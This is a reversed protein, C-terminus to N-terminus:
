AKAERRARALTESMERPASVVRMGKGGGGASPKVLVPFGIRKAERSLRNDSQDEGDYGPLTPVGLKQALQRAAAKDGLARMAAPPPGVWILGADMVAQAFGANEALFGYGPHIADARALLAASIVAPGDLYSGALPVLEDVAGTWWARSQDEAVLGLSRIGLQRCTRAIRVVLEGRNAVLLRGIRRPAPPPTAEGAESPLASALVKIQSGVKVQPLKGERLWRQVTRTSM